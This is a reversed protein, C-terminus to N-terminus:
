THLISLYNRDFNSLLSLDHQISKCGNMYNQIILLNKELRVVSVNALLNRHRQNKKMEEVAEKVDLFSFLKLNKLSFLKYITFLKLNSNILRM